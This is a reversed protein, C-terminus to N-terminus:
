FRAKKNKKKTQPKRQQQRPGVPAEVAPSKAAGAKPTAGKKSSYDYVESQGASTGQAGTFKEGKRRDRKPKRFGARERKPLWREPDPEVNPNFNKPLRIKRKRKKKAKEMEGGTGKRKEGKPTNGPKPTKNSSKAAYKPGFFASNELAEVDVSAQNFNPLKKSTDLAKKLDYKAYALVLQALTQRDKPDTKLLEELSTAAVAPEDGKLHFEATKRWVIEMDSKGKKNKASFAVAEKLLTAAAVRDDQALHLTVLASLIGTRFKDQKPLKSFVDTAKKILGKELYIQSAILVRELDNPNKKLLIEVAEETKGARSLAGALIMEEDEGDLGFKSALEKLLTRTLDVQNTYMALLVNNRAIAARNEKTLKHELEEVTAAKIRKKSDFINQDKNLTLLNNSAVAVLGVDTPKTKLVQNYIAGAEKERGQMQLSYGLQVRIIGTEKDIDEQTEDEEQLFETCLDTAKKLETEAESWREMALLHCARNYVMEYTEEEEEVVDKDLHVAAASLNTLREADFDDSTNKVVERYVNFCEEYRELRYLIQAKLEKERSDPTKIENIVKLSDGPRNLRYLAYAREFTLAFLDVGSANEDLVQLCNEFKGTQLLSVIKCHFAKADKPSVNLIKNCVKVAKEFDGSNQLRQLEAFFSSTDPPGEPGDGGKKKSAM